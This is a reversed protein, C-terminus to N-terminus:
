EELGDEVRELYARLEKPTREQRQVQGLGHEKLEALPFTGDNYEKELELQVYKYVRNKKVRQSRFFSKMIEKPIAYANNELIDDDVNENIVKCRYKIESYPSSIYVYVKDGVHMTSSRKWVITSTKNFHSIVDYFKVNCPIMFVDQM